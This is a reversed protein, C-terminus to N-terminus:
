WPMRNCARGSRYWDELAGASSIREAYPSVILDLSFRRMLDVLGATAVSL